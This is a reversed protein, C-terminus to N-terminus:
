ESYTMEDLLDFGKKEGWYKSIVKKIISGKLLKVYM